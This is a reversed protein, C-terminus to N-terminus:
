SLSVGTQSQTSFMPLIPHYSATLAAPIYCAALIVCGVPGSARIYELVSNVWVTIPLYHICLVVSGILLLLKAMRAICSPGPDDGTGPPDPIEMDESRQFNRPTANLKQLRGIARDLPTAAPGNRHSSGVSSRRTALVITVQLLCAVRLAASLELRQTAVHLVSM